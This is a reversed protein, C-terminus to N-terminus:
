PQQWLLRVHGRRVAVLQQHAEYGGDDPVETAYITGNSALAFYTLAYFLERNVKQGFEFVRRLRGNVVRLLAPGNEAYVSGDPGPQLVAYNGGSRRAFGLQRAVGSPAVQWIFWGNYGAVDVNGRRDVAIPGFGNDFPGKFTGSPVFARVPYLRGGSLRLVQRGTSIFLRGAPGLAISLPDGDTALTRASGLQASLAPAGAAVLPPWAPPRGHAAPHGGRGDGAITQIVGDRGVVRIRGSDAIYLKGDPAVALDSIENMRAEIARGGDGSFGARGDGALVRFQGSAVCVLVRHRALDTVYLAGDPAVALPGVVDLTALEGTPLVGATAPAAVARASGSSSAVLVTAVVIAAIM